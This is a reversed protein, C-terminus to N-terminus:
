MTRGVLLDENCQGSAQELQRTNRQRSPSHVRMVFEEEISKGSTMGEKLQDAKGGGLHM